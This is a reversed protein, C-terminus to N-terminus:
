KPSATLVKCGDDTILVVDEIRVGLRGELYVGPEITFIMGPELREQSRKSIFPREHIELGVGHGLSHGFYRGYGAQAIVDRAVKDLARCTMGARAAAIAALNARKVLSYIKAYLGGGRRVGGFCRTMDSCFGDLKVGMDVLVPERGDWVTEDPIHHCEAANAGVCVITEFAEGEGAEVMMLKIVRAMETETMGPKFMKRASDWIADNLAVAARIREVEGPTKVSRVALVEDEIDVFRARPFVKKFRELASVSISSEFGIRRPTRGGKALQPLKKLDASKLQPALRRVMPLFRFDTYLRMRSLDCVDGGECVLVANDCNIGTLARVNAPDTVLSFDLERGGDEKKM